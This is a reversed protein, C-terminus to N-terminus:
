NWIEAGKGDVLEVTYQYDSPTTPLKQKKVLRSSIVNHTSGMDFLAKVQKEEATEKLVISLTDLFQYGKQAGLLLIANCAIPLNKTINIVFFFEPHSSSDCESDSLGDDHDIEM